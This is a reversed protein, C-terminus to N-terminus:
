GTAERSSRRMAQVSFPTDKRSFEVAVRASAKRRRETWSTQVKASEDNVMAASEGQPPLVALPVAPVSRVQM